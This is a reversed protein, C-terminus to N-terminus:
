AESRADQVVPDMFPETLRLFSAFWPQSESLLERVYLCNARSRYHQKDQPLALTAMVDAPAVILAARDGAGSM